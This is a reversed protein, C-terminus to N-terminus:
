GLIIITLYGVTLIAAQFKDQFRRFIRGNMQNLRSHGGPPVRNPLIRNFIFIERQPVQFIKSIQALPLIQLSEWFYDKQASQPKRM